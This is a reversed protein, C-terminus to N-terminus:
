TTMFAMLHTHQLRDLTRPVSRKSLGVCGSDLVTPCARTHPNIATNGDSKNAVPLLLKVLLSTWNCHRTSSILFWYCSRANNITCIKVFANLLNNFLSCLFSHVFCTEERGDFIKLSTDHLHLICIPCFTVLTALQQNHRFCLNFINCLFVPPL